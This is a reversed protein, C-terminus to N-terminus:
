LNVSHDTNNVATRINHSIPTQTRATRRYTNAYISKLIDITISNFIPNLM